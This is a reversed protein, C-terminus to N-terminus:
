KIALLEKVKKLETELKEIRRKHDALILKEIKDFREDIHNFNEQIATFYPEAVREVIGPVREDIIKPVREDIIKPVREDISEDVVEKIQKLDKKDLSPMNNNESNRNYWIIGTLYVITKWLNMKM